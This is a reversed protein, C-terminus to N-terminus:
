KTPPPSKSLHKWVLRDINAYTMGRAKHLINVELRRGPSTEPSRQSTAKIKLFDTMIPTTQLFNTVQSICIDYIIDFPSLYKINSM